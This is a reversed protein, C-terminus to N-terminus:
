TRRGRPRSLGPRDRASERAANRVRGAHRRHHAPLRRHTAPRLPTRPRQTRAAGEAPVRGFADCPARLRLQRAVAPGRLRAQRAGATLWDRSTAIKGCTDAFWANDALAATAGALALRDLPYSNFCGKVTELAGILDPAGLAYGVRLGALARSKSLTQTVLLNPFEGILPVASEAGFDVYAEDVLVVSDPNGTLLTRLEARSLAIGTPANPNPLVIGGNPRAYDALRVRFEDDLPIEEYAIDYLACYVPYFSYTIDPFLLPRPHKLLGLFAHALVEDSGNGLFVNATDLGHAAAVAQKLASGDPDPYLRLDGDAATRIAALAAPSPAYPNENTNLKLLSVQKPQEGPVYPSLGRLTESWYPKM